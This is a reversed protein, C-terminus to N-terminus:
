TKAKSKMESLVDKLTGPKKKVDSKVPVTGKGNDTTTTKKDTKESLQKYYKEHLLYAELTTQPKQAEGKEVAEDALKRAQSRFKEGYKDDLPSCISDVAKNYAEDEARKVEQAEYQSIKTQTQNLESTLGSIQKQLAEINKAVAPDVVDSDMKQYESQQELKKELESLRQSTQTLQAKAESAAKENDERAKRERRANADNQQAQQRWYDADKTDVETKVEQEEAKEEVADMNFGKM